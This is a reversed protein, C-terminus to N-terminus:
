IKPVLGKLRIPWEIQIFMGRGKKYVYYINIGISYYVFSDLQQVIDSTLLHLLSLSVKLTM